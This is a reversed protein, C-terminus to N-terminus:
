HTISCNIGITFTCSDNIGDSSYTGPPTYTMFGDNASYVAYVNGNICFGVEPFTSPYSPTGPCFQVVTITTGNAGSAGVAGTAGNAGSIGTSGTAGQPGIVSAGNNVTATTGDPCTITNSGNQNTFVSCTPQKIVANNASCGALMLLILYKM